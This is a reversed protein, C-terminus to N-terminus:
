DFASSDSGTPRVSSKGIDTVALTKLCFGRGCGGLQSLQHHSGPDVQGALKWTVQGWICQQAMSGEEDVQFTLRRM